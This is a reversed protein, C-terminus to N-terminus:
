KLRAKGVTGAAARRVLKAGPFGHDRGWAASHKEPGFPGPKNLLVGRQRALAPQAGMGLMSAMGFASVLTNVFGM